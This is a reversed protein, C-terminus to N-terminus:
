SLISPNWRALEKKATYGDSRKNSARLLHRQVTPDADSSAWGIVAVTKRHELPLLPECAHMKGRRKRNEACLALGQVVAWELGNTSCALLATATRQVM